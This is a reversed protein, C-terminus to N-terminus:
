GRWDPVIGTVIVLQFAGIGFTIREMDSLKQFAGSRIHVVQETSRGRKQFPIESDSGTNM